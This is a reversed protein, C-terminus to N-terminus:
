RTGIWRNNEDVLMPILMPLSNEVFTVGMIPRKVQLKNYAFAMAKDDILCGSTVAFHLSTGVQFYRLEFAIPLVVSIETPSILLLDTTGNGIIILESYKMTPNSYTGLSVMINQREIHWPVM